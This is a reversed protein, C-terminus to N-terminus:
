KYKYEWEENAVVVVVVVVVGISCFPCSCAVLFSFLCHEIGILQNSV